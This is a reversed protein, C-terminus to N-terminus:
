LNMFSMMKQIVVVAAVVAVVIVVKKMKALKQVMILDKMPKKKNKYGLTFFIM